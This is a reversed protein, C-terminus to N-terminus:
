CSGAHGTTVTVEHGFCCDALRVWDRLTDALTCKGSAHHVHLCQSLYPLSGTGQRGEAALGGPPYCLALTVRQLM